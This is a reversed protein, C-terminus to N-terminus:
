TVGARAPSLGAGAGSDGPRQTVSGTAWFAGHHWTGRHFRLPNQALQSLDFWGTADPELRAGAQGTWVIRDIPVSLPQVGSYALECFYSFAADTRMSM